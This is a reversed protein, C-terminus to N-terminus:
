ILSQQEGTNAAVEQKFENIEKVGIMDTRTQAYYKGNAAEFLIAVHQQIKYVKRDRKIKIYDKKRIERIM